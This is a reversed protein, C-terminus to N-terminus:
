PVPLQDNVLTYGGPLDIRLIEGVRSVAILVPYRDLLRTRLYYARAQARGVRVIDEGATWRVPPLNSVGAAMGDFPSGPGLLAAADPGVLAAAALAPDRLESFRYQHELRAGGSEIVFEATQRAAQARVQVTAAGYVLKVALEQWESNTGARLAGEFRVRNTGVSMASAEVNLRCSRARRPPGPAGPDADSEAWDDGVGTKWYCFGIRRGHHLVALSSSDPSSLIKKWVIEPPLSGAGGRAGSEARWLLVNMLVWFSALVVFTLRAAM